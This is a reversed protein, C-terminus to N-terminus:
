RLPEPPRSCEHFTKLYKLFTYECAYWGCVWGIRGDRWSGKRLYWKLWAAVPHTLLHHWSGVGDRRVMDRAALTSYLDLKRQMESVTRMSHHLVSGGIVGCTRYGTLSEHVLGCDAPLDVLDRRFLRAPYDPSSIPYFARVEKGLVFWRRKFRFADPAQGDVRFGNHRLRALDAVFAADPVEDADLFLVWQHRCAALAFRRQDRFNDFPRELVRAGLDQAIRRTHDRSGADVIIMEDAVERLPGLIDALHLESDQTLMYFSLPQPAPPPMTVEEHAQEARDAVAAV